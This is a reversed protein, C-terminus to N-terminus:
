ETRRPRRRVTLGMMGALLVLAASNIEPVTQPAAQEVQSVNVSDIAWGSGNSSYGQFALRVSTSQPIFTVLYHVWSSSQVGSNTLNIINILNTFGQGGTTGPNDAVNAIFRNFTDSPGILDFEVTYTATGVQDSPIPLDQYIGSNTSSDSARFLAYNGSIAFFTAAPSAPSVARVSSTTSGAGPGFATWNFPNGTNNLSFNGNAVINVPAAHAASLFACFFLGGITSQKIKKM